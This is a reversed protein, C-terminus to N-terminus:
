HYSTAKSTALTVFNIGEKLVQQYSTAASRAISGFIIISQFNSALQYSKGQCNTEEEFIM